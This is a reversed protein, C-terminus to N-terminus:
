EELVAQPLADGSDLCTFRPSRQSRTSTVPLLIFALGGAVTVALMDAIRVRWRSRSRTPGAASRCSFNLRAREILQPNRDSAQEFCGPIKRSSLLAANSADTSALGPFSNEHLRRTYRLFYPQRSVRRTRSRKGLRMATWRSIDVDDAIATDVDAIDTSLMSTTVIRRTPQVCFRCRPAAITARACSRNERVPQYLLRESVPQITLPNSRVRSGYTITRRRCDSDLRLEPRAARAVVLV